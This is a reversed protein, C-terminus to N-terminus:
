SPDPRRSEHSRIEAELADAKARYNAALEHGFEPDNGLQIDAAKRYCQAAEERQGRAEHIAATHALGDPLDPFEELLRQCVEEAEELRGAQILDVARNSILDIEDFFVAPAAPASPMPPARDHPESASAQHRELCCKKFKKGSGCPCPHNRGPKM